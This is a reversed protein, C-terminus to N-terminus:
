DGMTLHSVHKLLPHIIFYTEGETSPQPESHLEGNERYRSLDEVLVRARIWPDYVLDLTRPDEPPPFTRRSIIPGEDLSETMFFTTVGCLGENILSYYVTTSGRYEPLIGAHAHLFRPGTSLLEDQLIVGGPGSYVLIEIDLEEVASIVREDNPDLTELHRCRVSTDALHEHVSRDTRLHPDEPLPSDHTTTNETERRLKEATEVSPDELLLAFEPLTGSREFLDLYIRSRNSTAALIGVNQVTRNM